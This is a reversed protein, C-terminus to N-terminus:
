QRTPGVLEIMNGDPDRVIALSMGPAVSEPIPQPGQAIPTVGHAAARELAQALDRVYFTLYSIGYTSHIYSLDQRQPRTGAFQMLKVRTAEPGDGAQMVHVTFPLNDSLGVSQAFEGDLTFHSVERLGLADEYFTKAAEIDSVVIGFDVRPTAYSNADAPSDGEQAVVAVAATLLLVASLRLMM